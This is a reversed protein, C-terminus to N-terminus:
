HPTMDFVVYYSKFLLSGIIWEFRYDFSDNDVQKKLAIYCKDTDYPDLDTGNILLDTM